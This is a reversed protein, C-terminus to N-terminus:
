KQKKVYKQKSTARCMFGILAPIVGVCLYIYVTYTLLSVMYYTNPHSYHSSLLIYETLKGAGVLLVALIVKMWPKFVSVVAKNYAKSHLAVGLGLIVGCTRMVSNLPMTDIHIWDRRVCWKLAHHVSWNPDSGLVVMGTYLAYATIIM